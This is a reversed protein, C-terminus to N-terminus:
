SLVGKSQKLRLANTVVAVSSFAMAAAALMPSLLVGFAPYLVGAAVPILLINYGFAWGLNQRINRMTAQSLGTATTVGNLDGSMLVVDAAEMAVDTGTGIAIGVHAAALAPADNIGDGVFAVKTTEGLTRITEVKTEPLAESVVDDIGLRDAIARATTTRDGTIMVVKRGTSRLAEVIEAANDKVPDAVAIVAAVASDVAVFVPTEGLAARAEAGASLGGADLGAAEMMRASGIRVTKGEVEAAVGQGTTTNFADAKPWTGAATTIAQGIPHESNAEVAAALRLVDERAFGKALAVHTVRPTGMTLTGTKDFAITHVESLRQLADGQRFLVGLEAARGSGTMISVPVALGMACPCAIILVSVGAVLAFEPAFALWVVVTFLAIVLVAPVFIATVRDVLAEVPLRASQATQVMRIIQALVTDSGVRRVKILLAGPGNITAGVVEDGPGKAVPIPEGTMMSEDLTSTGEHVVGDTPVREGPRLRLIDGPRLLDVPRDVEGSDTVVRATKPQLGILAQIAAGARGKARAELWRGFLILVIIVGAAEFYVNRAGEPLAQPLFTAVTSYGFAAATGLAVLSNMDPRRQLLAPIGNSFFQRGPGALTLGILFFQVVWSTQMGVTRAIFHHLAPFLHGGMEAVFVPLVLIAALLTSKWIADAEDPGDAEPTDREMPYGATKAAKLARDPADEGAFSVTATADALNVRADVVGPVETLSTELRRVCSACHLGTVRFREISPSMDNM